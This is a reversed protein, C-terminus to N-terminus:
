PYSPLRSTFLQSSPHVLSPSQWTPKRRLQPDQLGCDDVGTPLTSLSSPMWATGSMCLLFRPNSGPEALWKPQWSHRCFRIHGVLSPALLPLTSARDAQGAQGMMGGRSRSHRACREDSDVLSGEGVKSFPEKGSGCKVLSRGRCGHNNGPNWHSHVRTSRRTSRQKGRRGVERVEKPNHDVLSERRCVPCGVKGAKRERPNRGARPSRQNLL